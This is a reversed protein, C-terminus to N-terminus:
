INNRKEVQRLIIRTHLPDVLLSKEPLDELVNRMCAAPRTILAAAKPGMELNIEEREYIETRQLLLSNISPSRDPRIQTFVFL